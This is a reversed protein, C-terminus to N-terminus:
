QGLIQKIKTTRDYTGQAYEIDREIQKRNVEAAQKATRGYEDDSVPLLMPGYVISDFLVYGIEDVIAIVQKEKMEEDDVDYTFVVDGVKLGTLPNDIAKFRSLQNDKRWNGPGILETLIAEAIVKLLQRDM